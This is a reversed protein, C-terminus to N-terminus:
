FTKWLEQDIKTQISQVDQAYSATISFLLILLIFKRM